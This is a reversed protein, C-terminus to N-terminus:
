TVEEIKVGILEMGEPLRPANGSMKLMLSELNVCEVPKGMHMNVLIEGQTNRIVWFVNWKKKM